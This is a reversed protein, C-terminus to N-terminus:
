DKKGSEIAKVVAQNQAESRQHFFYFLAAQVIMGPLVTAGETARIAYAFGLLLGLTIIDLIQKKREDTM